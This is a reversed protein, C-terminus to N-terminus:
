GDALGLKVTVTATGRAMLRAWFILALPL